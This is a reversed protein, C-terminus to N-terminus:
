LSSINSHITSHHKHLLFSCTQFFILPFQCKVFSFLKSSACAVFFGQSVNSGNGDEEILYVTYVIGSLVAYGKVQRRFGDPETLLFSIIIKCKYETM